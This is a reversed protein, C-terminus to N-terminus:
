VPESWLCSTNSLLGGGSLRAATPWARRPGFRWVAARTAVGVAEVADGVVQGTWVPPDSGPSLVLVWRTFFAAISVARARFRRLWGRVTAPPLGLQAAIPRHGAGAAHAVLAAGIVEVGDRRRCLLDDPLLVHTCGCGVCRARRPQVRVEGDVLRVTRTRAWGWRALRGACGPCRLGAVSLEQEVKELDGSIMLM